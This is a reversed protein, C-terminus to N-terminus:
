PMIPLTTVGAQQRAASRIKMSAMMIATMMQCPVYIKLRQCFM